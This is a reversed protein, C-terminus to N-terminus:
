SLRKGKVKRLMARNIEAWMSIQVWLVFLVRKQTSKANYSDGYLNPSEKVASVVM